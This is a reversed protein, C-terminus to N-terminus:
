VSLKGLRMKSAYWRVCRVSTKRRLARALEAIKDEDIGLRILECCFRGV